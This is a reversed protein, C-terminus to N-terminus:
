ACLWSTRIDGSEPRRSNVKACRSIPSDELITTEDEVGGIIPHNERWRWCCLICREGREPQHARFRRPPDPAGSQAPSLHIRQAQRESRLQYTPRALDM